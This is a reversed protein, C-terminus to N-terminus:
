GEVPIYPPETWVEGSPEETPYPDYFPPTEVPDTVEPTPTSPFLWGWPDDTPEVFPDDTPEVFPDDSPIPEESPVPESTHVHCYRGEEGLYEYWGVLADSDGVHTSGVQERQFDVMYVTQVSEEPCFEGALHYRGIPEGKANNVPSDVCVKVPVHCQCHEKPADEAFLRFSQVRNGRVDQTCEPLSLKGCDKCINYSSLTGPVEFAMNEKGEHLIEMVKQWMSVSPNKYNRNIVESNPYGTWVAGTYYSTYGCFWYDFTDNTTGTKGAVTQGSIRAGTGTGSSVANSLMSNIYYATTSKIPWTPEPKNDVVVKGGADKIELVTTAKTFQGGRPFTAFAAAMEFTSVGKTLGGMALPSRDIDSSVQGNSNEFYPVMSTIGYRNVMFDYSAQPTVQELVRVAVTNLSQTVGHLVTTLGGYTPTVNVPWPKGNLEQPSDDVVTAPTILGMEIAPSYVSLPKISSGPQRKTDVPTNWGRNVTKEQTSGMAVVLGTSNDVVSIASILRQGTKTSVQDLNERNNYVTDVAAQVEPDYACVISLGGSFVRQRCADEGLGTEEQLLQISEKIVQEVYWSYVTSPKKEEQGSDEAGDPQSQVDRKFVLPQAIAADREAETIYPAPRAPDEKAMEKLINEQRAKNFERNTWVTGSDYSNEAGCYDCVEDRSLSYLKCEPNQCQYRVVDVTGYPAYLSPNNTIGALSACEALNLEWVNKGFYYQAAAQVGYCKNGMYIRNFYVTLIEEKKYNNELELATFIELIKRTVTVDDYETLNKILQQDITSGGQINGGTFMRLLGSGTRRWDVGQHNWFRKDEIAIFANILDDPIDKYEIIERNENGSLTQLEVLAGTNKDQYYIVSNEDMTYDSLDLFTRPMVATKVYVAAFCAMFCGTVIGVLLLTGILQFFRIIITLWIPRRRRKRGKARSPQRQAGPQAQSREPSQNHNTDPM